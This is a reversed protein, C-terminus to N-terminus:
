MSPHGETVEALRAEVESIPIEGSVRSAVTGDAHIFVFYPTGPLGFADAVSSSADDLLTPMTYGERDYWASPPYNPQNEDVLTNVTILDVEGMETRTNLWEQLMPLENQCHSCWHAMFVVMKPLGDNSISLKRGTSDEGSVEPAQMGVARDKAPDTLKPLADGTIEVPAVEQIAGGASVKADDGGGRTAVIAVVFLAAVAAVAIAFIPLSKTGERQARRRQARAVSTM